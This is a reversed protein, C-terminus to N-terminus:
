RLRARSRVEDFGQRGEEDLVRHAGFSELLIQGISRRM